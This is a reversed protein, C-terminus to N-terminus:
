KNTSQYEQHNMIIHLMRGQAGKVKDKTWGIAKLATAAYNLVTLSNISNTM